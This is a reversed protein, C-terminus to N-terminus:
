AGLPPRFPDASWDALANRLMLLARGHTRSITSKDLGLVEGVEEMNLEQEYYLSVVLRERAPLAAISKALAETIRGLRLTEEQNEAVQLAPERADDFANVDFLSIGAVEVLMKHYQDLTIALEAAIDEDNGDRGLRQRVARMATAASRALRLTRTPAWTTRRAEDIMANIIARSGIGEDLDRHGTRRAMRLVAILGAQVLDDLQVTQPLRCQLHRALRKVVPVYRKVLETEDLDIRYAAAAALPATLTISGAAVAPSSPPLPSQDDPM